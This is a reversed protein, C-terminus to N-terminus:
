RAMLEGTVSGTTLRWSTLLFLEPRLRKTRYVDSAAAASIPAYRSILVSRGDEFGSFM